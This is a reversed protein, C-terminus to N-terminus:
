CRGAIDPNTTQESATYLSRKVTAAPSVVISGAAIDHTIIAGAGIVSDRGIRVGKLIRAGTGIFVNDEIVVPATGIAEPAINYRRGRPAITHFDTDFVAVDAGFLCEDGISVEVAACITTGSLGCHNGIRIRAGARLTRLIVPHAVGLATYRSDSCLVVADGIHITSDPARSIIPLGYCRLGRGFRVSSAVLRVRARMNWLRVRVMSVLRQLWDIM